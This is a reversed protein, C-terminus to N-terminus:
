ESFGMLSGLFSAAQVVGVLVLVGGAVATLLLAALIWRDLATLGRPIYDM